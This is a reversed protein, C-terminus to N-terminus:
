TPKANIASSPPSSKRKKLFLDGFRELIADSKKKFTPSNVKGRFISRFANICETMQPDQPSNPTINEKEHNTEMPRSNLFLILLFYSLKM